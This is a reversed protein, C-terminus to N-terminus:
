IGSNILMELIFMYFHGTVEECGEWIFIEHSEVLPTVTIFDQEGNETLETRIKYLLNPSQHSWSLM